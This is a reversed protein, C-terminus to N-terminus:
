NMFLVWISTKNTLLALIKWYPRMLRSQKSHCFAEADAYNLPINHKYYCSGGIRAWGDICKDYQGFSDFYCSM